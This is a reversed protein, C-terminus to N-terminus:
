FSKYMSNIEYINFIMYITEQIYKCIKICQSMCKKACIIRVDCRFIIYKKCKIKQKSRGYYVIIIIIIFDKKIIAHNFNM